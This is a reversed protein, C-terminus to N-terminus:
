RTMSSLAASFFSGVILIFMPIFYFMSVAMTLRGDLKEVDELVKERHELALSRAIESMLHAGEVGKEAVLDLQSAFARLVPLGAQSFVERLVGDTEGRSFLPRRSQQSAEIASQILAALPGPLQGARGIAQEPPTNAALEAAVLTAVEPISRAARKRAENGKRRLTLLPLSAALIPVFWSVPAAYLLPFALGLAGYVVVLLLLNGLSQGKYEGNLQAWRFQWRLVDFASMKAAKEARDVGRQWAGPLAQGDYAALAEIVDRERRAGRLRMFAMLLLLFGCILLITNLNLTM